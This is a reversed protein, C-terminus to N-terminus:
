SFATLEGTGGGSALVALILRGTFLVLVVALWDRDAAGAVDIVEDEAAGMEEICTADDTEFTSV